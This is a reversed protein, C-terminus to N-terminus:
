RGKGFVSEVTADPLPICCLVCLFDFLCVCLGRCSLGAREPSSPPKAGAVAFRSEMRFFDIESRSREMDVEKGVERLERGGESM